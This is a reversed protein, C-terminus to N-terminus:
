EYNKIESLGIKKQTPMAELKSLKILIIILM